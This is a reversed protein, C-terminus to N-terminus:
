EDGVLAAKASASAFEGDAYVVYCPGDSSYWTAVADCKAICMTHIGSPQTKGGLMAYSTFTGHQNACIAYNLKREALRAREKEWYEVLNPFADRLDASVSEGDPLLRAEPLEGEMGELSSRFKEHTEASLGRAKLKGDRWFEKCSKGGANKCRTRAEKKAVQRMAHLDSGRDHARWVCGMSDEVKPDLFCSAAVAKGAVRKQYHYSAVADMLRGLAEVTLETENSAEMPLPGKSMVIAGAADFAAVAQTNGIKRAVDVPTNRRARVSPDAGGEILTTIATASDHEAAWHLPTAKGRAAANPDAGGAILAAIADASDRKAAWHLPAAKVGKARANPDAGAAILATIPDPHDQWAADHLPVRGDDGRRSTPIPVAPSCPRSRNSTVMGPLRTCHSNVSGSLLAPESRSWGQHPARHVGRQRALGGLAARLGQTQRPRQPGCRWRAPRIRGRRSRGMCGPTACHGQDKRNRKNPDAGGAILAAIADPAGQWAAYHLATRGDDSHANPDAGAALLRKIKEVDGNGAADHLPAGAASAMFATAFALAALQKM